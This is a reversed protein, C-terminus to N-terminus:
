WDFWGRYGGAFSPKAGLGTYLHVFQVAAQLTEREARGKASFSRSSIVLFSDKGDWPSSWDPVKQRCCFKQGGQPPVLASTVTIMLLLFQRWEGKMYLCVGKGRWLRMTQNFAARWNQPTLTYCRFYNRQYTCSCKMGSYVVDATNQQERCVRGEKQMKAVFRKRSRHM